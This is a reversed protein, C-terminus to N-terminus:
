NSREEGDRSGSSLTLRQASAASPLSVGSLKGIQEAQGKSCVVRWLILGHFDSVYNNIAVEPGVISRISAETKSTEEPEVNRHKPWIVYECEDHVDSKRELAQYPQVKSEASM